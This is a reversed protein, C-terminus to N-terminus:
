ALAGIDQLAQVIQQLTYGGFTSDVNVVTGGSNETFAAEAVATTPQVIPTANWLSLKQSTATGLKTGTTTGFDIDGSDAISLNGASDLNFNLSTIILFGDSGSGNATGTILQINGGSM